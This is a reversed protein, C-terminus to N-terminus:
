FATGTEMEFIMRWIRDSQGREMVEVPKLGGFAPNPAMLWPKIYDPKMIRSLGEHLRDLERIPRLNSGEKPGKREWEGITRDSLGSLRAFDPRNVGYKRRVAAVYGALGGADPTNVLDPRDSGRTPAVGRRTRGVSAPGTGGREIIKAAM